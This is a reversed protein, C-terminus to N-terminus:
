GPSSARFGPVGSSVSITIMSGSTLAGVCGCEAVSIPWRPEDPVRGSCVRADYSCAIWAQASKMSGSTTGVLSPKRTARCSGSIPPVVSTALWGSNALRLVVLIRSPTDTVPQNVSSKM